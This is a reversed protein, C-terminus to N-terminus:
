WRDRVEYKRARVLTTAATESTTTWGARVAVAKVLVVFQYCWCRCGVKSTGCCIQARRVSTDAM